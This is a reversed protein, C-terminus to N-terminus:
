IGIAVAQSRANLNISNSGGGNKGMKWGLQSFLPKYTVTATVTVVPIDGSIGVYIGPYSSVPQCTVDIKVTDVGSNWDKDTWYQLRAQTKPTTSDPYPIGTRTVSVVQNANSTISGTASGSPCNYSSIPLRAAYRAGDRVGKQLAHNDLFYNGLEFSGFMLTLLLPTVLAMEAAASGTSSALIPNILKTM